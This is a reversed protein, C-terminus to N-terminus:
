FHPLNFLPLNLGLLKQFAYAIALLVLAIIINRRWKYPRSALTCTFILFLIGFTMDLKDTVFAFGGLSILVLIANKIRTDMPIPPILRSRVVMLLGLLGIFCSVGFPFLGPGAHALTGVQYRLSGIGFILAIAILFVGKLLNQNNM